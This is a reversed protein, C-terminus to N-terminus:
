TFDMLVPAFVMLKPVNAELVIPKAHRLVILVMFDM